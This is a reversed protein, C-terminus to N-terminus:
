NAMKVEFTNRLGLKLDKKFVQECVWQNHNMLKDQTLSWPIVFARRLAKTLVGQLWTLLLSVKEMCGRANGRKVERQINSIFEQESIVTTMICVFLRPMDIVEGSQGTQNSGFFHRNSPGATSSLVSCSDSSIHSCQHMTLATSSQTIAWQDLLLPWRSYLNMGIIDVKSDILVSAYQYQTSDLLLWHFQWSFTILVPPEVAWQHEVHSERM